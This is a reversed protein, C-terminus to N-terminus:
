NAVECLFKIRVLRVEMEDYDDRLDEMVTALDDSEAEDHFYDYIEDIVDEDLTQELYYDLNLKTGSYVIAEIEDMLEEMEMKKADAIDELPLRRDISQIIFVKNVSKNVISKMVFDDPRDIENEEVYKAILELFEKGFKKAKGEGVGQCNKLEDVTIPYMISMDELSPDGFIVWPQLGKKKAVERRLDKLMALLTPDGGGGRAAAAAAANDDDDDEGDAFERDETLMLEYPKEYFARGLDTVSILGYAEIDKHLFHLVLGQHIVANWFRVSHEKGAGFLELRDHHYSKIISNMEGALINALHEMKFREPLSEVLELIMSMEERGDFQKKPHLCNDCAGCNEVHYDEGFYNLLLKRRCSNSEAYAVTEVLLQKGIEQEAIPKGQMFKELKQIDKYSYFTICHGERGDRGARGTEQYYGEISKPIDYHIVFRVDPKDIGMGFAITAVIVDVEEMLFKDQNDARTKADLGAHYPAAKIGNINLLEALEEVKKRSLCYIIGSKGPNQKIYKIIDRKPDSKDRIEYHLNPRNFSSKFVTADSMGLNKLIDSQVKPTATATLAIIPAVGIEEVINRIRRYEPRFDHGWESICHAEDVAYFSIKIEKLMAVNEAKTLSEPAVYLLKTAGSLLDNRVETIQAKNLSSNLFHAIGDNGAVFGRIADVQNKMLAILPSIVIATGEMVLAPLQYCLSKGGGTPMLVFANNKDVLHRIIREQDAKFSDFGFFEKLKAHLVSSDIAM